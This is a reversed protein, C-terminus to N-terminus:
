KDIIEILKQKSKHGHVIKLNTKPVNYYKALLKMAAENAKNNFASERIYVTVLGNDGMEVLPGKSSNPKILANLKM